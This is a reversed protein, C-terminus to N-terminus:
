SFDHLKKPLIKSISKKNFQVTNTSQYKFKKSQYWLLQNVMRRKQSEIIVLEDFLENMLSNQFLCFVNVCIVFVNIKPRMKLSVFFVKNAKNKYFPPVPMKENIQIHNGGVHQKRIEIILSAKDSM